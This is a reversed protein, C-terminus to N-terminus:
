TGTGNKCTPTHPMKAACKDVKHVPCMLTQQEFYNTELLQLPSLLDFHRKASTQDHYAALSTNKRHGTPVPLYRNKFWPLIFKYRWGQKVTSGTYGTSFLLIENCYISCSASFQMGSMTLKKNSNTGPKNWQSMHPDSKLVLAAMADWTVRQAHADFWRHPM